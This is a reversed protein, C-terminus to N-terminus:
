GCQSANRFGCIECSRANERRPTAMSPPALAKDNLVETYKPHQDMIYLQKSTIGHKRAHAAM